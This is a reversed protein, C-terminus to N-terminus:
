ICRRIWILYKSAEFYSNFNDSCAMRWWRRDAEWGESGGDGSDSGGQKVEAAWGSVTMMAVAPVEGTMAVVLVEAM